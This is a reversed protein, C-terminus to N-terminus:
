DNVIFKITRVLDAGNSQLKLTAIYIGHPLSSVDFRASYKGAPKNENALTSVGVGLLDHIELTVKGDVPLTYFITTMGSAPNPYNSLQLATGLNEKADVANIIDSKLVANEMPKFSGDALENLPDADMGVKISSGKVFADTSKLKLIILEEEAQVAVSSLSNWGLRLENGNQDFTVPVNSGKLSVGKVEVMSSPINLILSVAGVDMKSGARIALEFESNASASKEEGTLMQLSSRTNGKALPLFSGNFDGTAMALANVTASTGSITVRMAPPNTNTTGLAHWFVWSPKVFQQNLVFYRQIALGDAATISQDDNVDGARFKVSAIQIPNAFWYNAEGADTSNIAGAPKGNTNITVLHNGSTVGTILYEGLANTNATQGNVSVTMGALPDRSLNNYKVTGSVSCENVSLLAANSVTEGDINSLLCRYMNTSLTLDAPTIVLTSTSVGSVHSGNSLDNWTTGGDTSVQWKYTISTASTATVSYTVIDGVCAVVAAPQSTIQPFRLASPAIPLPRMMSMDEHDIIHCHWVFGPGTSPDFPFLLDAPLANIARDTPSFRVVFTTVEGPLVIVNDKWGQEELAAPLVPGLLHPGIIPNGGVAGESNVTSYPYPSGAGGPYGQGAPFEPIGTAAFATSYETLYSIDNIAQRSVLQWQTLHIHIPHADASVNIIQWVETSGELPVETPGGLVSPADPPALEPTFFSNNILVASPGGTSMVENLILQRKKVPTVGAALNGAFDTLKVLPTVPRLVVPLASKDAPAAPPTSSVMVGNVVFQMIEDTLGPIVPDGGPYPAGANNRLTFTTNAAVGTFDIIVDYRQGPAILLTKGLAPDLVVPTELLGGEGGVVTIAPGPTGTAADELWMNLFRANCGELIRFRYKRPAVSLYPWTKGNVTMIDGVFEPTWFPHIDPNPPAVPWYLEGNVNFMRDQIALEIEPLYANTGNFTPTKGAPTVEQVKDDGSWGPLHAAEEDDGRLFYYGALGTYVNIRTLGDDHPHYWLTTGEQMNPYTALSSSNHLFGPGLLSYGPMFWGDPGGDSGSPMEGGHLHVVMPIPGTYPDTLPNGNLQYGNMMLTQDALINFQDYTVGFLDNRYQVQLPFGSRAEITQAPWMAPGFTAGNDKSIAYAAYNGKGANPTAPSGITGTPLVMGQPLAAQQVLVEKILLNGGAKANVRLGAAFHPMPDMYKPISVPDIPGAFPYYNIILVTPTAPTMGFPDTYTVSIAQQNTPNTWTVTISNTNLGATITGANTITWIYNTMGPETTYVLGATVGGSITEQMGIGAPGTITPVPRDLSISNGIFYTAMNATTIAPVFVGPAPPTVDCAGQATSWTLPTVGSTVGPKITFTLTFLTNAPLGLVVPTASAYSLSITGSQDSVPTTVTNGPLLGSNVSIGTYVLKSPDFILKMSINGVNTFGTVTVPVTFTGNSLSPLGVSTVPPSQGFLDFSVMLLVLMPTVIKSYFKTRM